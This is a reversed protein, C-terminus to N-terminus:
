LFLPRVEGENVTENGSKNSKRPIVVIDPTFFTNQDDLPIVEEGEEPTEEGKTEVEGVM